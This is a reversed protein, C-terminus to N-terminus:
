VLGWRTAAAAMLGAILLAPLMNGVRIHKLDWINVAIGMIIIGGCSTIAAVVPETMFVRALSALATLTGQYLGVSAVSLMVGPGLAAGMAISAVGDLASKTFLITSDGQLGDQLAGLVAMPGVCFLLSAAVFGRAFRSDNSDADSTVARKSNIKLELLAGLRALWGEIDMFEGLISGIVLSLLIVLVQASGQATLAMQIGILLTVGGMAQLTIETVRKPLRASALLGIGAGVIIAVMNVLTGMGSM